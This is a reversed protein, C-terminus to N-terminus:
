FISDNDKTKLSAKGRVGKGARGEKEGGEM